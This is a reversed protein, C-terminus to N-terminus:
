TREQRGWIGTRGRGDGVTRQGLAGLAGCTGHEGARGAPAFGDRVVVICYDETILAVLFNFRKCQHDVHPNSDKAKSSSPYARCNSLVGQIRQCQCQGKGGTTNTLKDSVSNNYHHNSLRRDARM